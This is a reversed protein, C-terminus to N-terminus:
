IFLGQIVSVIATLILGGIPGFLFSGILIPIDAPDYKMFPVAPLIPFNILLVLVFSLSALMAMNTLIKIK